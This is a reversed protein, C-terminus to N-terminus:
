VACHSPTTQSDGDSRGLHIEEDVLTAQIVKRWAHGAQQLLWFGIRLVGGIHHDKYDDLRDSPSPGNFIV